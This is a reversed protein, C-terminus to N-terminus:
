SLLPPGRAGLPPGARIPPLHFDHSGFAVAVATTPWPACCVEPVVAAEALAAFACPHDGQTDHQSPAPQGDADVLVVRMGASTCIKIGFLAGSQPRVDLMYGAPFLARLLLLLGLIQSICRRSQM